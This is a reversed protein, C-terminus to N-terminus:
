FFYGILCWAAGAIGTFLPWRFRAAYVAMQSDTAGKQLLKMNFASVQMIHYLGYLAAIAAVVYSFILLKDM